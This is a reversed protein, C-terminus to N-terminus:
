PAPLGLIDMKIDVSIGDAPLAGPHIELSLVPIWFVLVRARFAALEVVPDLFSEM